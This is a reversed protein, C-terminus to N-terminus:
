NLEQLIQESLAILSNPAQNSAIRNPNYDINILDIREEEPRRIHEMGFLERPPGFMFEEIRRLREQM